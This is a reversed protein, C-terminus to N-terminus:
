EINRVDHAVQIPYGATVPGTPYNASGYHRHWDSRCVFRLPSAPILLWHSLSSPPPSRKSHRYRLGRATDAGEIYYFIGDDGLEVCLLPKFIEIHQSKKLSGCEIKLFHSALSQFLIKSEIKICGVKAVTRGNMFLSRLATKVNGLLPWTTSTSPPVPIQLAHTKIRNM